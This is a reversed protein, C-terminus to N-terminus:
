AQQFPCRFSLKGLTPANPKINKSAFYSILQEPLEELTAAALAQNHKNKFERFPVFQVIDRAMKVGNYSLPVDDADLVEMNDLIVM